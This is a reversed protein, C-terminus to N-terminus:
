LKATIKWRRYTYLIFILNTVWLSIFASVKGSKAAQDGIIFLMWYAVIVGLSLIYGNSKESRRNAVGGLAFGLVTFILCSFSLAWRRHYERQMHHFNELHEQPIKPLAKWKEIERHLENISLAEPHFDEDTISIPSSLNIDYTKFNVVTYNDEYNKHIEGDMLRLLAFRDPNNEEEIIQGYKAIITLPSKTNREDYIFLNALKGSRSDVQNAYVVMDYFGESFSGAKITASAKSQGIQNILKEFSNAGWPGIYFSTYLSFLFVLFGFILAPSSIQLNSLGCAKLAVIESDNSMRNYTFLCAFLLAMPLIMPLFRISMYLVLEFMNSFAVGHILLFETLRLTQFSLLISIFIVLGIIFSPLIESLIYTFYLRNKFKM